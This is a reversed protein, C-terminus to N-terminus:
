GDPFALGSIDVSQSFLEFGATAPTSGAVDFPRARDLRAGASRCKGAIRAREPMSSCAPTRSGKAFREGASPPFHQGVAGRKHSLSASSAEASESRGRAEMM